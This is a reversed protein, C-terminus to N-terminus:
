ATLTAWAIGKEAVGITYQRGRPSPVSFGGVEGIAESVGSFLEPHEEALWKMGYGQATEEDAVFALVIDREPQWKELELQRLAAVLMGIMNKMDVAGRGCVHGDTIQGSFPPFSWLTEDAPVVDTHAHILLASRNP